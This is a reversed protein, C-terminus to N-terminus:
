SERLRQDLADIVESAEQRSLSAPDSTESNERLWASLAARDLGLKRGIAHIAGLQRTTVRDEPGSPPSHGPVAGNSTSELRKAILGAANRLCDAADRLEAVILDGESRAGGNQPGSNTTSQTM